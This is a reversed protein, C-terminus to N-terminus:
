LAAKMTELRRRDFRRRVPADIRTRLRPRCPSASPSVPIELLRNVCRAQLFRAAPRRWVECPSEIEDHAVQAAPISTM